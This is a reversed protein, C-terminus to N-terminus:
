LYYDADKKGMFSANKRFAGPIRLKLQSGYKTSDSFENSGGVHVSFISSTM